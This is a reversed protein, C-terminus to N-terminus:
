VVVETGPAVSRRRSRRQPSHRLRFSSPLPIHAVPTRPAACRLKEEFLKLEAVPPRRRRERGGVDPSLQARAVLVLEDWSSYFHAFFLGPSHTAVMQEVLSQDELVERPCQLGVEGSSSFQVTSSWQVVKVNAAGLQAKLAELQHPSTAGTHTSIYVTDGGRLMGGGAGNGGQFACGVADIMTAASGDTHRCDCERNLSLLNM